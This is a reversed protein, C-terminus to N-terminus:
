ADSARGVRESPEDRRPGSDRVYTPRADGGRRPLGRGWLEEKM